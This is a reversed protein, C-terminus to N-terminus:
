ANGCEALIGLFTVPQKRSMSRVVCRLYVRWGFTGIITRGHTVLHRTTVYGCMDAYRAALM